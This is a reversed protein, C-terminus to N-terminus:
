DAFTHFGIAFGGLRGGYAIWQSLDDKEQSLSLVFIPFMNMRFEIQQTLGGLENADSQLESIVEEILKMGYTIESADNAYRIDYAWVHRDSMIGMFGNAKTYHYLVRPLAKSLKQNEANCVAGFEQELPELRRRLSQTDEPSM